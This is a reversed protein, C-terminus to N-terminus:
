PDEAKPSAPAIWAGLDLGDSTTISLDEGGRLAHEAPPVNSTDPFYILARQLAWVLVVVSSTPILVVLGLEM